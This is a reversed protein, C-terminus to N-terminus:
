FISQVCFRGDQKGKNFAQVIGRKRCLDGKQKKRQELLIDSRTCEVLICLFDLSLFVKCHLLTHFTGADNHDNESSKRHWYTADIISIETYAYHAYYEALSSAPGGELFKTTSYLKLNGFLLQFWIYRSAELIHNHMRCSTKVFIILWIRM